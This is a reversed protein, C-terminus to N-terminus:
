NSNSQNNSQSNNNESNNGNPMEPPQGNQGNPMEPPVGGNIWTNQNINNCSSNTTYIYFVGTSIVAGVLVGIIFLIMRDKM